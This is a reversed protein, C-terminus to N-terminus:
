FLDDSSQDIIQKKNSNTTESDSDSSSSEIFSNGNQNENTFLSNIDIYENDKNPMEPMAKARQELLMERKHSRIEENKQFIVIRSTIDRVRRRQEITKKEMQRKMDLMIEIIRKNLDSDQMISKFIITYTSLNNQQYQVYETLFLDNFFCFLDITLGIKLAAYYLQYTNPFM